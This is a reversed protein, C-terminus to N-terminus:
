DTGGQRLEGGVQRDTPPSLFISRSSLSIITPGSQQRLACILEGAVRATDAYRAPCRSPHSVSLDPHSQSPIFLYDDGICVSLLLLLSYMYPLSLSNTTLTFSRVSTMKLHRQQTPVTLVSFADFRAYNTQNAHGALFRRQIPSNSSITCVLTLQCYFPGLELSIYETGTRGTQSSHEDGDM